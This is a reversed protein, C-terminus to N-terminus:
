SGTCMCLYPHMHVHMCTRSCAQVYVTASAPILVADDALLHECCHRIAPLIGSTLLGAPHVCSDAQEPM